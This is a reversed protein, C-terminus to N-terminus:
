PEDRTYEAEMDRALESLDDDMEELSDRLSLFAQQLNWLTELVTPGSSSCLSKGALDKLTGEIALEKARLTVRCTQLDKVAFSESLTFGRKELSDRDVDSWEIDINEEPVDM